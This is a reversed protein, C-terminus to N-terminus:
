KSRRRILLSSKRKRTREFKKVRGSRNTLIKGRCRGGHPHDIPNMHMGRVVPRIGRHINRGAKGVWEKVLDANSLMGVTACCGLPVKRVESSPLRLIAYDLEKGALTVYSGASRALKGGQGPVFEVNHIVTGMPMSALSMCNGIRPEVNCGVASEIFDGVKLGEPALVYSLTGDLYKVLAIFATRIPDYEFRLVQAKGAKDRRFDIIRYLRKAGGGRSICTVRGQNNRGGHNPVRVTLTKESKGKWLGRKDVLVVGRQSNRLNRYKRLSM